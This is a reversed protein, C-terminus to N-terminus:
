VVCVCTVLSAVLRAEVLMNHTLLVFQIFRYQDSM